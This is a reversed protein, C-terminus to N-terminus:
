LIKQCLRARLSPQDCSYFVPSVAAFSRARYPGDYAVGAEYRVLVVEHQLNGSSAERLQALLCAGSCDNALSGARDFFFSATFVIHMFQHIAGSAEIILPICPDQMYEFAHQACVHEIFKGVVATDLNKSWHGKPYSRSGNYGLLQLSFSRFHVKEKTEQIFKRFDM